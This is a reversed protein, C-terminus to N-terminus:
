TGNPGVMGVRCETGTRLGFPVGSADCGRDARDVGRPCVILVSSCHAYALPLEQQQYQACRQGARCGCVPRRPELDFEADVDGRRGVPDPGADTVELVHGPMRPHGAGAAVAAVCGLGRAHQNQLARAIRRERLCQTPV